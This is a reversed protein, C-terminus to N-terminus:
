GYSKGYVNTGHICMLEWIDRMYFLLLGEPYVTEDFIPHQILKPSIYTKTKMLKGLLFLQFNEQINVDKM